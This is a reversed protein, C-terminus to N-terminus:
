TGEARNPIFLQYNNEIASTEGEGQASDDHSGIIVILWGASPCIYSIVLQGQRPLRCVPALQCEAEHNPIQVLLLLSIEESKVHCM